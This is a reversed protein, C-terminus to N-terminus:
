VSVSVEDHGRPRAYISRSDRLFSVSVKELSRRPMTSSSRSFFFAAALSRSSTQTWSFVHSLFRLSMLSSSSRALISRSIAWLFLSKSDADLSLYSTMGVRCFLIGLSSPPPAFLSPPAVPDLRLSRTVLSSIAVTTALLVPIGTCFKSLPSFSFSM